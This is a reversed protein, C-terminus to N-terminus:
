KKKAAMRNKFEKYFEVENDIIEKLEEPSSYDPIAGTKKMDAIYEPDNFMARFKEALYKLCEPPTGKPAQLPRRAAMDLKLGKEFSTPVDPFEQFRKKAFIMLPRVYDTFEDPAISAIHAHGGLIAAKMPGSGDFPVHTLELNAFMEFALMVLENHSRPGNNAAIIKTPNKKAYEILQDVTKFESDKKVVLFKPAYVQGAIPEYSHASFAVQSDMALMIYGPLNTYGITYGDPKAKFLETFAIAGGSGPKNIIAIPVGLFKKAFKDIVRANIDTGGGPKYPVIIKIAKEPYSGGAAIGSCLFSILSFVIWIKKNRM